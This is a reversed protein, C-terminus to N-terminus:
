PHSLARALPSHMLWELGNSFQGLASVFGM